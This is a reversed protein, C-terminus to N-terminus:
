FFLAPENIAPPLTIDYRVLASEEITGRSISGSYKIFDLSIEFDPTKAKLAFTPYAYESTNRLFPIKVNDYIKPVPM